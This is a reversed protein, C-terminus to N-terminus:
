TLRLILSIAREASLAMGPSPRPSVRFDEEHCNALLAKTMGRFVIFEELFVVREGAHFTCFPMQWEFKTM